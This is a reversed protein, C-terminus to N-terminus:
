GNKDTIYRRLKALAANVELGIKTHSTGYKRALERLSFGNFFRDIILLQERETLQGIIRRINEATQQREALEEIDASDAIEKTQEDDFSCSAHLKQQREIYREKNRQSAYTRYIGIDSTVQTGDELRFTKKQEYCLGGYLINVANRGCIDVSYKEIILNYMLVFTFYITVFINKQKLM